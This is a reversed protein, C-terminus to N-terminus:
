VYDGKVRLQQQKSENELQLAMEKQMRLDLKGMEKTKTEAGDIDNLVDKIDRFQKDELKTFIEKSVRM